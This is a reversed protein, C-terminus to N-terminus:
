KGDLDAVLMERYGLLSENFRRRIQARSVEPGLVDALADVDPPELPPRLIEQQTIPYSLPEGKDTRVPLGDDQWVTM